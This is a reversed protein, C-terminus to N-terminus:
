PYQPSWKNKHTYQTVGIVSPLNAGEWLGLYQISLWHCRVRWGWPVSASRHGQQWHSLEPLMEWAHLVWFLSFHFSYSFALGLKSRSGEFWVSHQNQTRNLFIFVWHTLLDNNHKSEPPHWLFFFNWIRSIWMELPVCPHSHTFSYFHCLKTNRTVSEISGLWKASWFAWQQACQQLSVLLIPVGMLFSVIDDCGVTHSTPRM